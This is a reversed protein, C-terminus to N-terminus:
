EGWCVAQPSTDRCGWLSPFRFQEWAASKLTSNSATDVLRCCKRLGVPPKGPMSLLLSFNHEQTTSLTTHALGQTRRLRGQTRCLAAIFAISPIGHYDPPFIHLYSTTPPVWRPSVPSWIDTWLEWGLPDVRQPPRRPKTSSHSLRGANSLPTGDGTTWASWIWPPHTKPVDERKKLEAQDPSSDWPHEPEQPTVLGPGAPRLPVSKVNPKFTLKKKHTLYLENGTDM